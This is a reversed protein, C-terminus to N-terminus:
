LPRLCNYSFAEGGGVLGSQTEVRVLLVSLKQWKHGAWGKSPGGDKGFPSFPIELPIAEVSKIRM